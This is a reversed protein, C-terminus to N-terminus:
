KLSSADGEEEVKKYKEFLEDFQKSIKEGSLKFTDTRRGYAALGLISPNSTPKM